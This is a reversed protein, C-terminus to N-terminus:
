YCRLVVNFKYGSPEEINCYATSMRRRREKQEECVREEAEPIFFSKKFICDSIDEFIHISVFLELTGVPQVLVIGCSLVYVSINLLASCESFLKIEEAEPTEKRVSSGFAL